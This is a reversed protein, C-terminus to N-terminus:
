MLDLMLRVAYSKVNSVGLFSSYAEMMIARLTHLGETHRKTAFSTAIPLKSLGMVVNSLFAKLSLIKKYDANQFYMVAELGLDLDLDLDLDQDQDLDLDLDQDQPLVVM